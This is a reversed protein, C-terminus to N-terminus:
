AEEGRADGLDEMAMLKVVLSTWGTFHQTRQGAGTEPDYQEWAFGTEKWSKYVTEVLNKRLRTYLDAARRRFPGEQKALTQLQRAAMYNMPMWVPGRWYNEGTGYLEDGRSLSRIGHASWLQEEDGMVDLIRGVKADDPRMLGVLFPFLSVYGKHCVLQHEEFADITADCYCGEEASWHLDDLNREIAELNGGLEGAEEELGLADAINRLSKTMLGVWSMLDVHLEGPHPPQPRPYDDLGSTLIHTETRGRWRYGEKSSHAQRGYGKIDGRQTKRFWDYQRRLLPYMKRLFDEGLEPNDLHATRPSNGSGRPPMQERAPAQTGNAKRLREMFDEIVLFLTPPNAYHPYQVRFEEPVKTRAEDGLIQERPIWGDEDMTRYWSKIVDLTLDMDWDAIPALHFGEDWLFGRPFFPRSPVSTFLEYPGELKQLGRERAAAAEHWFSEDEEEYEPAYSRDVMQEGYFYGVGGLLNSFMSKGFRQHDEDQFPAKLDFISSFREAFSKSNAEIARSVDDSTLEKGASGSSFIVDFEFSGEYTRQVIQSNGVGPKHPVRYVQWAPPPDDRGLSEKVAVTAAQLQQFLLQPAQWIIEDSVNASNVLTVHGPRSSSIKHSSTPHGGKGETFVIKYEGLTASSGAFSVDGEFGVESGESQAELAGQGEQAMYYYVVTKSSPPADRHLEGKIRAAWSGGHFGGPIKVFSTTMDIKNGQDHIRQVGGTRADYEDWGYGHIDQGQECTYRLGDKVDNYGDIRGWMLGTWLSQPVRPRLGFYLNPKYPGWFLSQNNQRGIESTLVSVDGTATTGAVALALATALQAIRAM